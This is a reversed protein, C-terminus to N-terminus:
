YTVDKGIATGGTCSGATQTKPNHSRHEPHRKFLEIHFGLMQPGNKVSFRLTEVNKKNGRLYYGWTPYSNIKERMGSNAHSIVRM